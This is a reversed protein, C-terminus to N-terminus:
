GDFLHRFLTSSELRYMERCRQAQPRISEAYDVGIAVIGGAGTRTGVTAGGVAM